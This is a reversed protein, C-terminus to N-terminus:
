FPLIIFLIKLQKILLKEYGVKTLNLHFYESLWTFRSLFRSLLFCPFLSISIIIRTKTKLFLNMLFFYTRIHLSSYVNIKVVFVVKYSLPVNIITNHYLYIYSWLCIYMNCYSQLSRLISINPYQCGTIFTIHQVCMANIPITRTLKKSTSVNYKLLSCKIDGEQRNRARPRSKPHVSVPTYSSPMLHESGFYM